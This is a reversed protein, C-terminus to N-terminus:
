EMKAGCGPCYNYGSDIIRWCKSCRLFDGDRRFRATQELETSPVEYLINEVENAITQGSEDFVCVEDFEKHIADIANKRSILDNM